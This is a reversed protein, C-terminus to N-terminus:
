IPTLGCAAFALVLGCLLLVIQEPNEFAALIIRM